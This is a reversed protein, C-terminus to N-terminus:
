RVGGTLSRLTEEAAGVGRILGAKALDYGYLASIHQENAVAVAEQAQVVEINSAVGAAFRDRAQVLQQAALERGKVAVKLEESTARLDLFATQIDYYIAAKLDEAEARRRRLEADAELLRGHMRGGQFIPVNVTGSISYTSRADSATLGIAGYDANVRLSPLAEGVVARRAAEASKVRELAARYDPRNAYAREVAREVDTEPDPLEPLAPDLSFNQGLPLGIARALQLKAKAADNAASTARQTDTSLQVEARLVDIGAILGGQKLDLAQDYLAQASTQQALAADARASAALAQLYLTAAVHIVLDRAGQYTYRAAAVDHSESREDYTKQLDVLAQSLYIRSDFVKFPGVIDSVGPFTPGGSSSGFGFAALNIKQRSEAIRGNVNPLLESLATWREGRARGLEQEAVLVGLNHDLARNIADVVTIPQVDGTATGTPVGGSFISPTTVSSQQALARHPLTVVLLLSLVCIVKVSM